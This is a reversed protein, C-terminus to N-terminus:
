IRRSSLAGGSACLSYFRRAFKAFDKNEETNEKSQRTKMGSQDLIATMQAYRRAGCDIRGIRMGPGASGRGAGRRWRGARSPERALGPPRMKRERGQNRSRPRPRTPLSPAAAVGEGARGARRPPLPLARQRRRSERERAGRVGHRFRCPVSAGGRSGRGRAGRAPRVSATPCGTGGRSGRGRAALRVHSLTPTLADRTVLGAHRTGTARVRGVDHTGEREWKTPSPLRAAGKALPERERAGRAGPPRFRYPMQHWQPERERAGCPALPLPDPHPGGPGGDFRRNRRERDGCRLARHMFGIM